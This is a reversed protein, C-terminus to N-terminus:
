PTPALSLRGPGISGTFTPEQRGGTLTIVEDHVERVLDIVDLGPRVIQHAFALATPGNAKDAVKDFALQGPSAAFLVVVSPHAGPTATTKLAVRHSMELTAPDVLQSPHLFGRTDAVPSGRRDDRCADVIVFELRRASGALRVAEALPLSQRLLAADDGRQLTAGAPSLFQEGQVSFGDGAFYIVAIDASAAAVGFAQLADQLTQKDPDTLLKVSDFRIAELSNAVLRADPVANAIVQEHYNGVGIVLAIRKATEDAMAPPTSALLGVIFAAFVNWRM